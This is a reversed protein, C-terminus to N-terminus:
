LQHCINPILVSVASGVALLVIDDGAFVDAVDAGTVAVAGTAM